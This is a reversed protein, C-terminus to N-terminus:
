AKLIGYLTATTGISFNGSSYSIGITTIAATSRWLGVMRGVAGSGNNDMNWNILVTKNTSGAYSFLNMTMFFPNSLQPGYIDSPRIATASTARAGGATSGDGNLRSFSYNTGSDSNFRLLVDNGASSVTGSLTLVLDTYSGSISGFSITNTASALTTTAIPEYTAPM